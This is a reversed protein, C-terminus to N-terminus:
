SPVACQSLVGYSCFRLCQNFYGRTIGLWDTSFNPIPTPNFNVLLPVWLCWKVTEGNFTNSYLHISAEYNEIPTKKIEFIWQHIELRRQCRGDCFGCSYIIGRGHGNFLCYIFLFVCRDHMAYRGDRFIGATEVLQGPVQLACLLVEIKYETLLFHVYSIAPWIIKRM